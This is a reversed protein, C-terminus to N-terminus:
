VVVPADVVIEEHGDVSAIVTVRGVFRAAWEVRV